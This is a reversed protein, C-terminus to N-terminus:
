VEAYEEDAFPAYGWESGQIDNLNIAYGFYDDAADYLYIVEDGDPLKGWGIRLDTATDVFRVLEDVGLRVAQMTILEWDKYVEVEQGDLYVTYGNVIGLLRKM